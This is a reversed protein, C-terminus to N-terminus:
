LQCGNADTVEFIYTEGGQAGTFTFSGGSTAITGSPQDLTGGTPSDWTVTYPGVGGEAAVEIEGANLQCEDEVVCTGAIMPAPETLTIDCTSECGNQDIVTM